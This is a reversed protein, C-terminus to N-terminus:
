DVHSTFSELYVVNLPIYFKDDARRVINREGILRHVDHEAHCDQMM